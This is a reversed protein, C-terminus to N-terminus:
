AHPAVRRELWAPMWYAARQMRKVDRALGVDDLQVDSPDPEDLYSRRVVLVGEADLYLAARFWLGAEPLERADADRFARAQEAFGDPLSWPREGVFTAFLACRDGTMILDAHTRRWPEEGAPLGIVSAVARAFATREPSARAIHLRAASWRAFDPELRATEARLREPSSSRDEVGRRELWRQLEGFSDPEVDADTLDEDGTQRAALKWLFEESSLALARPEGDSGLMVVPAADLPKGDPRWWGVASGAVTRLFGVFDTARRTGDEVYYDHLRDGGLSFYGLSGYTRQSAWEYFSEILPPIKTGPPAHFHLSAHDTIYGVMPADNRGSRGADLTPEGEAHDREM